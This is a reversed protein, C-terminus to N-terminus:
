ATSGALAPFFFKTITMPAASFRKPRSTSWNTPSSSSTMLARGASITALSRTLPADIRPSPVTTKIRLTGATRERRERAIGRPAIAHAFANSNEHHIIGCEHPLEDGADQLAVRRDFDHAGGHVAREGELFNFLQTGVYNREIQFHWAHIAHFSQAHNHAASRKGYHHDARMRLFACVGSEFGQRQARDIEDGLGFGRRGAM